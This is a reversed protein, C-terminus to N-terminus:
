RLSPVNTKTRPLVLMGIDVTADSPVPEPLVVPTAIDAFTEILTIDQRLPDPRVRLEYVGPLAEEVKFSGDPAVKAAYERYERLANCGPETALFESKRKVWESKALIYEAESAFQNRTPQSLGPLQTSLVLALDQFEGPVSKEAWALRGVVRYGPGGLSVHATEGARVQVCAGHPWVKWEGPPVGQIVFNGQRDTIGALHVQLIPRSGTCVLNQLSVTRNAAPRNGLRLTGRVQSSPQIIIAPLDATRSVKVEAYGLKHAVFLTGSSAPRPLKFEGRADTETHSGRSLALDFEGPLRMYALDNAAETCMLVAAGVAPTGDPLKVVACFRPVPELAIKLASQASAFPARVRQTAPLYGEARIEIDSSEIERGRDSLLFAFWGNTGTTKLEPSLVVSQSFGSSFRQHYSVASWVEFDEIPKKSAADLVMGSIRAPKTTIARQLAITQETGDAVLTEALRSKFGRAHVDYLRKGGPASRWEFRGASGTTASNEFRDMESNEAALVSAGAIPIGLEDVVRGRLVAGKALVFRLREEAILGAIKQDCAVFGDAQVTILLPGDVVNGFRFTGDTATFQNAMKDTWLRNETVKAGAVPKGQEDLVVGAVVAGAKLVMLACQNRFDDESLHVNGNTTAGLKASRYYGAIYDPHFLRYSVNAINAPTHNCLWRGQADTIEEHAFTLGEREPPGDLILKDVGADLAVVVDPVPQGQEDVALGGISLGRTLRVTYEAPINEPSDGRAAAWSVFRPVFGDRLIAIRFYWLGEGAAPVTVLAEGKEDSKFANTTLDPIVGAVATLTAGRLPTGTDSDLVRLLMLGRNLRTAQGLAPLNAPPTAAPQGSLMLASDSAVPPAPRLLQVLLALLILVLGSGAAALGYGRIKQFLLSRLTAEALFVFPGTGAKVGGLIASVLHSPAAQVGRSVLAAGVVASGLLVGRKAFLHRLRDLARSVRKQAADESIRMLTAIERFSKHEFFRLTLANRDAENLSVLAEDVLPAIQEWAHETETWQLDAAEMEARRRHMERRSSNLVVFRTTRVLWGSLITQRNLTGAKRALITFVAQSIEEADHPNRVQRLAASFVLNAYREVLTGFAQESRRSAYENLLEFDTMRTSDRKCRIVSGPAM